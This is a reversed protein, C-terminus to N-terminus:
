VRADCSALVRQYQMSREVYTFNLILTFISHTGLISKISKFIRKTLNQATSAMTSILIENEVQVDIFLRDLCFYM